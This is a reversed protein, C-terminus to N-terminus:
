DKKVAEPCDNPKDGASADASAEYRKRVPEIFIDMVEQSLKPIVASVAVHASM